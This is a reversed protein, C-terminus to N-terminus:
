VEDNGEGEYRVDTYEGSDTLIEDPDHGEALLSADVAMRLDDNNPHAELLYDLDDPLYQEIVRVLEQREQEEPNPQSEFEPM